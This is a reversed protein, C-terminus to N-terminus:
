LGPGENTELRDLLRVASWLVLIPLGYLSIKWTGPVFSNAAAANTARIGTAMAGIPITVISECSRSSYQSAPATAAVNVNALAIMAGCIERSTSLHPCNRSTTGVVAM